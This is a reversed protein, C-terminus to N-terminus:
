GFLAEQLEDPTMTRSRVTEGTDQRVVSVTKSDFDWITECDVTRFKYGNQIMRALISAEVTAHDIRAKFDSTVSKKEDELEAVRSYQRALNSGAERLEGETLLCKLTERTKHIEIKREQAEEM